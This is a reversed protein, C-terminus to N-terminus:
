EQDVRGRGGPTESMGGGAPAERELIFRGHLAFACSARAGLERDRWAGRLRLSASADRGSDPLLDAVADDPVAMRHRDVAESSGGEAVMQFSKPLLATEAVAEWCSLVVRLLATPYASLPVGLKRQHRYHYIRIM